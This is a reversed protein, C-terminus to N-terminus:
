IWDEISVNNFFGYLGKMELPLINEIIFKFSDKIASIRETGYTGIKVLTDDILTFRVLEPQERLM